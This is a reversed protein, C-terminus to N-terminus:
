YFFLFCFSFSFFLFFLTVGMQIDGLWMTGGCQCAMHPPSGFHPGEWVRDFRLTSRTQTMNCCCSRSAMNADVDVAARVELRSATPPTPNTVNGEKWRLLSQLSINVSRTTADRWLQCFSSFTYFFRLSHIEIKFKNKPNKFEDWTWIQCIIYTKPTPSDVSDLPM